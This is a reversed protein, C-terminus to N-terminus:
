MEKLIEEKKSNFDEESILGKEKFENLKILKDKPSEGSENSEKVKEEVVSEVNELANKLEVKDILNNFVAIFGNVNEKNKVWDFCQIQYSCKSKINLSNDENIKIIIKEGWSGWSIQTKAYVIRDTNNELIFSRTQITNKIFDIIKETSYESKYQINKVHYAPFCFTM